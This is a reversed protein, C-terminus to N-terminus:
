PRNKLIKMTLAGREISHRVANQEASEVEAVATISKGLIIVPPRVGIASRQAREM